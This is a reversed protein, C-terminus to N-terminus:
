PMARELPSRVRQRSAPGVRGRQARPFVDLAPVPVDLVEDVTELGDAPRQGQADHLERKREQNFVPQRTPGFLELADALTTNWAQFIANWYRAMPEAMPGYFAPYFETLMRGVDADPDWMLQGRFFLNLFVTAMAPAVLGKARRPAPMDRVRPTM